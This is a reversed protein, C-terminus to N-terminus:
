TTLWQGQERRSIPQQHVAQGTQRDIVLLIRQRFFSFLGKPRGWYMLYRQNAASQWAYRSAAINAPVQAPSPGPGVTAAVAARCTPCLNNEGGCTQCYFQACWRCAVQHDRCAPRNCAPCAASLGAAIWRSCLHCSKVCDCCVIAGSIACPQIGCARCIDRGCHSCTELCHGHVPHAARDCMALRELPAQCHHCPLAVVRNSYLDHIVTLPQATHGTTLTAQHYRLPLTIVAYSLPSLTVRLRYRELEDAVKRALEQALDARIAEAPTAEAPNVEAQLRRYFSILRLLPKQLRQQIEAQMTAIRESLRAQAVAEAQALYRGLQEDSLPFTDHPLTAWALGTLAPEVEPRPQGAEDLIIALVEEQKEDSIFVARLNLVFFQESKVQVTHTALRCNVLELPFSPAPEMATPGHGALPLQLGEGRRSLLALMQDFLRSGYVVLEEHPSLDPPESGAQPFVLYLRPKGFHDARLLAFAIHDAASVALWEENQPPLPPLQEFVFAPGALRSINSHHLRHSRNRVNRASTLYSTVGYAAKVQWTLVRRKLNASGLVFNNRFAARTGLHGPRLITVLNYLELLDNHVPTATLMLVYRKRIQNVFRYVQTTHNKLKHAEDIILLDYERALFRKSWRPTKARDLSVLWRCHPLQEIGRASPLQKLQELVTFTEHFKAQMEEQWQWTLSAPTLILITKALGREILEKMVIGAEITKGLGVEDALLAQGRMDRLARLAAELQHQYHDVSIDDLCLLRDFGSSVRLREAQLRLDYLAPSDLAAGKFWHAPAPEVTLLPGPVQIALATLLDPGAPDRQLTQGCHSCAEAGPGVPWGCWPCPPETPIAIKPPSTPAPASLELWELQEGTM